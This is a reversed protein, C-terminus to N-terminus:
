TERPSCATTWIPPAAASRGAQISKWSFRRNRTRSHIGRGCRVVSAFPPRPARRRRSLGTVRITAPAGVRRRGIGLTRPYPEEPMDSSGQRHLAQSGRAALQPAAPADTRQHSAFELAAAITGKDGAPVRPSRLDDRVTPDARRAHVFSPPPRAGARDRRARRRELGAGTSRSPGTAAQHRRARARLRPRLRGVRRPPRGTEWAARRGPHRGTWRARRPALRPVLVLASTRAVALFFDADVAIAERGVTVTLLASTRRGASRSPSMMRVDVM